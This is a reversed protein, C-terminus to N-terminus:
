WRARATGTTSGCCRSAMCAQWCIRWWSQRRSAFPAAGTKANPTGIVDGLGFVNKYMPHQLTGHDVAMWGKLPGNSLALPSSKIFDPASMPPVVHLLDYPVVVEKVGQESTQYFVAERSEPRLEHLDHKDHYDHYDLGKREKVKEPAAAIEQVGFIVAGGTYFDVTSKGRVGNREFTEEALFMIKQPAGGCKIPTAPATFVARGGRFSDIMRWTTEAQAHDYISCVGDQGLADELGRVKGWDIQLGPAVILADYGVQQGTVLRVTQGDPDIDKVRDRIWTVGRPMVSQEPRKSAEKPVIGAGVLTWFPQYFHQDSPEIVAIDAQPLRRKLRAAVTIGGSGGGIIVFHHRM